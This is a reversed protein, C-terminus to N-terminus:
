FPPTFCNTNAEEPPTSYPSTVVGATEQIITPKYQGIAYGGRPTISRYVAASFDVPLALYSYGLLGQLEPKEVQTRGFNRAAQFKVKGDEVLILFGRQAGTIEIVSDMISELLRPLDTEAALRKNFELLRLLTQPEMPGRQVPVPRRGRPVIAAHGGRDRVVDDLTPADEVRAVPLVADRGGRPREQLGSADGLESPHVAVLRHLAAGAVREEEVDVRVLEVVAPQHSGVVRHEAVAPRDGELDGLRHRELVERLAVAHEGLDAAEVLETETAGPAGALEEEYEHLDEGRHSAFIEELDEDREAEASLERAVEDFAFLDEDLDFPEQEPNEM